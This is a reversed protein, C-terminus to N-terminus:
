MGTSAETRWVQVKRLSGLARILDTDGRRYSSITSADQSKGELGTSSVTVQDYSSTDHLFSM